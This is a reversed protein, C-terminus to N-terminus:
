LRWLEPIVSAEAAGGHRLMGQCGGAVSLGRLGGNSVTQFRESCRVRGEKEEEKMM